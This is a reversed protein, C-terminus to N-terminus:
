PRLPLVESSDRRSEANILVNTMLVSGAISKATELAIVTAKVTDLIGAEYLDVMEGTLANIGMNIPSSIVDDIYDVLDANKTIVMLPYKLSDCTHLVGPDKTDLLKKIYESAKALIVGGGPVVGQNIAATVANIADEVRYQKEKLEAETIAGVHITAVKGSLRRLRDQHKGKNYTNEKVSIKKINEYREKLDEPKGAGELFLTKKNDMIVRKCTGLDVESIDRLSRGVVPSVFKGSTFLALDDMAEKKFDGHGPMKFVAIKLNNTVKNRILTSLVGMEIDDCVIIIPQDQSVAYNIADQLAQVVELKIDTILILPNEYIVEHRDPNTIFYPSAFGAAFEMGEGQTIHSIDNNSTGMLVMGEVGVSQFADRILKGLLPDNNASITAVNQIKDFDDAVEVANAKVFEIALDIAKEMGAKIAITGGDQEAERCCNNCLKRTLATATTTGDGATENTKIAAEKLLDAGIREYPDEIIVSKAVTYGDKTVEPNGYGKYINVLRGHPGLTSEVADAMTNIGSLLKDRAEQGILM